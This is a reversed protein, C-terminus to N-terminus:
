VTATEIKEMCYLENAFTPVFFRRTSPNYAIKNTIRETLTVSVKEAGTEPDIETLRGTNAGIYITGDIIVPTAFLRAGAHWRWREKFTDLDICYLHKDLSAALVANGCIVPSANFGFEAQFSGALTGDKRRVFCLQGSMTGFIILDRKEDYAFSEKIDHASFGTRLEEETLTGATYKWVLTGRRADFLYAGGDNSGIVIQRHKKLYLPSSHTYCPMDRYAWATRGTKLDLAAIGGRKKWLGYELGIFLLGLEPALAPSSGVWDAELSVWKRKGTNADLAYVNGDYGGFYVTGDHLAPSSFIGKGKVHFGVRYSWATTGDSQNLAYMVGADSGIYVRHEDIAPDSKPVVYHYSPNASAFKWHVKFSQAPPPPPNKKTLNKTGLTDAFDNLDFVSHLAINKEKFYAYYDEDRFRVIVWIAEVTHGLSELVEVQRVFSKGSNTLDDVLIVRRGKHLQGEVMRTLGTKKRSKRIFFGSVDKRDRRYHAHAVLETVLPIAGVELGGIQTPKKQSFTHWFLTAIDRMIEPEMVIRRIDFLWESEPAIAGSAQIIREDKGRVFAREELAKKLHKKASATSDRM